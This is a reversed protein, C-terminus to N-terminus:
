KRKEGFYVKLTQNRNKVQIIDYIDNEIYSIEIEGFSRGVAEYVKEKLYGVVMVVETIGRSELLELTNFLMPKGNVPVLCKLISDTIPRLRKGIGAVLIIAQM